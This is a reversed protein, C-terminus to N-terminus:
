KPATPTRAGGPPPTAMATQVKVEKAWRGSAMVSVREGVKVDGELKTKKSLRYTHVHGAEDKMQLRKGATFSAVEGTTTKPASMTKKAAALQTMHTMGPTPGEAGFVMGSFAAVVAVTMLSTILKNM